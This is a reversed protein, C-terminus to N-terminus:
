SVYICLYLPNFYWHFNMFQEVVRINLNKSVLLKLLFLNLQRRYEQALFFYWWSFFLLLFDFNDDLNNMRNLYLFVNQLRRLLIYWHLDSFSNFSSIKLYLNSNLNLNFNLIFSKLYLFMFLNVHFVNYTIRITEVIM